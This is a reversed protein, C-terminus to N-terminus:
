RVRLRNGASEIEKFDGDVSIGRRGDREEIDHWREKHWIEARREDFHLRVNAQGDADYDVVERIAKGDKGIVSYSLIDLRGDGSQDAVSLVPVGTIRHFIGVGGGASMPRGKEVGVKFIGDAEIILGEFRNGTPELDPRIENNRSSEIRFGNSEFTEVNSTTGEPILDELAQTTRVTSEQAVASGSVAVLLAIAAPMEAVKKM